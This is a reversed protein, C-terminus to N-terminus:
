WLDEPLAIIEKRPLRNMLRRNLARPSDHPGRTFTPTASM